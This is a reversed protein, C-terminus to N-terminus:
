TLMVRRARGKKLEIEERCASSGRELERCIEPRRDYITCAFSGARVVLAICHDHQMKLYRNHGNTWILRSADEGLRIRDPENVPVYADSDSFCCAGCFQCNILM